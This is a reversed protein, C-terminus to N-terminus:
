SETATDIHKSIAPIINEGRIGRELIKGDPGFLILLPITRISYADIVERGGNVWIEWPLEMQTAAEISREPTDSVAVGLVKFKQGKFHDYAAKIHPMEARCPGCWSAWFDVLVYEGHGVLDSLKHTTESHTVTFDTFMQGPLTALAVRKSDIVDNIRKYSALVPHERVFEQLDDLQWNDADLLLLRYGYVNDVNRLIESHLLANYANRVSDRASDSDASRYGASIDKLRESLVNISDNYGGSSVWRRRVGGTVKENAIDHVINADSLIFSGYSDSGAVVDVVCPAFRDSFFRVRENEVPFSDLVAKDDHNVLMVLTGDESGPLNITTTFRAACRPTCFMASVVLVAVLWAKASIMHMMNINSRCLSLVFRGHPM